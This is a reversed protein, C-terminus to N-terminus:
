CWIYPAKSRGSQAILRPLMIVGTNHGFPPTRIDGLDLCHFCCHVIFTTFFQFRKFARIV